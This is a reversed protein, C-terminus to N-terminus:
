EKSVKVGLVAGAACAFSCLMMAIGCLFMWGSTLFSDGYSPLKFCAYAATFFVLGATILVLRM